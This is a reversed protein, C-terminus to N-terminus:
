FELTAAVIAIGAKDDAGLLTTGSATVIDEGIKTALYPYQRPSLVGGPEDPPM